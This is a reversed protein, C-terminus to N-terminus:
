HRGRELYIVDRPQDLLHQGSDIYLTEGSALPGEALFLAADALEGPFTRRELLNLLHSREAEDETQDHSPLIAGPGLRYVRDEGTHAMALMQAAVDAAAKSMTYSFFDPNMNALKMDTLQIVRRGKASRAHAFYTQAMLAPAVANVQMARHNTAPDLLTVSDDAFTSANAILCRWDPLSAALDRVLAAGEEPKSLDAKAVQASPLSAALEHADDASSNYHVVVHWGAEAFRRSIHAGIRKAGGTVLVAPRTLTQAGGADRQIQTSGGALPM